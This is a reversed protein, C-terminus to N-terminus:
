SRDLETPSLGVIALLFAAGLAIISAAAIVIGNIRINFRRLILAGVVVLVAAVVVVLSLTMIPAKLFSPM